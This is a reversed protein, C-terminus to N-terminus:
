SRTKSKKSNIIPKHADMQCGEENAKADCCSYVFGEPYEKRAWESDIEGHCDEDHDAWFDGEFDPETEGPHWVCADDPNDLVDYEEQCQECIEFRQLREDRKRKTDTDGDAGQVVLLHDCALKFAATNETCIARLVTRLRDITASDIADHLVSADVSINNPRSNESPRSTDNMISSIDM